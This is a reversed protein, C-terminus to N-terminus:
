KEAQAATTNLAMELSSAVMSLNHASNEVSHAHSLHQQTIREIRELAIGISELGESQHRLTEYFDRVAGHSKTVNAALQVMVTEIERTMEVGADANQIGIETASVTDRMASQIQVLISRVQQAAQTSQQSLSRVEQAVVAFGRGHVGARAAEISANLALLNSQTAIESVSSIIDDVKQTLQVLSAITEAIATVQTRIQQMGVTVKGISDQGDKFIDLAQQALQTISRARENARETIELFRELQQDANDIVTVQENAGIVQQSSTDSILRATRTLDDTVTRFQPPVILQVKPRRAFTPNSSDMKDVHVEHAPAPMLLLVALEGVMLAVFGTVLAEPQTQMRQGVFAAIVLAASHWAATSAGRTAVVLAPVLLAAMLVLADLPTSQILLALVTVGTLAIYAINQVDHGRRWRSWAIAAFGVAIYLAGALALSPPSFTLPSSTFVLMLGIIM